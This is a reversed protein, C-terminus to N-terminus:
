SIFYAPDSGYVCIQLCIIVCRGAVTITNYLVWQSFCPWKFGVMASHYRQWLLLVGNTNGLEGPLMCLKMIM